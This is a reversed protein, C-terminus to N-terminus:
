KSSYIFSIFSTHTPNNGQLITRDVLQQLQIDTLGNVISKLVNFLDANSIFGDGDVDYVKFTFEYKAEKNEDSHDVRTFTSLSSIFEYFDVAGTNKTDFTSM